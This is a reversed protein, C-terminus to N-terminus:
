PAGSAFWPFFPFFAFLPFNKLFRGLPAPSASGPHGCTGLGEDDRGTGGRGEDRGKDEVVVERKSLKWRSTTTRNGSVKREDAM